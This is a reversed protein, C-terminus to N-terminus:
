KGEGRNQYNEIITMLEDSTIGYAASITELSETFLTGTTLSFITNRLYELRKNLSVIYLFAVLLAMVMLVLLTIWIWM